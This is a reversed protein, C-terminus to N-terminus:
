NKFPKYEFGTWENGVHSSFELMKLRIGHVMVSLAGMILNLTHGFVIVVIGGVLGVTGGEMMGIGMDNFSQAISLGALGVAFLRIYSIIDAFASVGGLAINIIDGLARLIGKFFGDGEQGSFLFVIGIGGGILYIAWDPVPYDQAGLVVNRVLFYLGVISALWGLEAVAHIHPSEKVKKFFALTHALVLHVLAITFCILQVFQTVKAANETDFSDLAPIVFQNLFPIDAIPGYGFWNGTIAGWAVTAISLVDFLIIADPVRGNKIKFRVTLLLAAITLISGYGADGIIMAFFVTFFALFWFSIDLERYGPTTGMFDFVPKIIGIARPNDVKTPVADEPGPDQIVLGLGESAAFGKLDELKDAPLFGEIESIVALDTVEELSAEVAAFDHEREWVKLGEALALKEGQMASLESSLCAVADEAEVREQSLQALSQEPLRFTEIDADGPDDLLIVRSKDKSKSVMIYRLDEPLNALQDANALAFTLQQGSERINEVTEPNFDGWAEIRSIERRLRDLTDQRDKLAEAKELVNRAIDRAGELSPVEPVQEVADKSEPVSLMARTLLTETEKLTELDPSKADRTEIHLTGLERLASTVKRRHSKLALVRVKKMKAIM